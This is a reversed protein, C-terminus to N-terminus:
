FIFNWRFFYYYNQQAGEHSSFNKKFIQHLFLHNLIKKLKQRCHRCFIIFKYSKLPKCGSYKVFFYIKKPIQMKILIKDRRSFKSKKQLIIDFLFINIRFEFTRKQGFNLFKITEPFNLFKNKGRFESNAKQSLFQFNLIQRLIWIKIKKRM